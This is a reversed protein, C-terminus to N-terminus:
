MEGIQRTTIRMSEIYTNLKYNNISFLHAIPRYTHYPSLQELCEYMDTFSRFKGVNSVLVM